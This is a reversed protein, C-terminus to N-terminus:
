WQGKRTITLNNRKNTRKKDACVFAARARPVGTVTRHKHLIAPKPGAVCQALFTVHHAVGHLSWIITIMSATLQPYTTNRTTSALTPILTQITSLSRPALRHLTWFIPSIKRSPIDFQLLIPKTTVIRLPNFIIFPPHWESSHLLDMSLTPIMSIQLRIVPHSLPFLNVLSSPTYTFTALAIRSSRNM